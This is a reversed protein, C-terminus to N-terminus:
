VIRQVIICLVHQQFSIDVTFISEILVSIVFTVAVKINLVASTFVSITQLTIVRGADIHASIQSTHIQILQSGGTIGRDTRGSTCYAFICHDVASLEPEAHVGYHFTHMISLSQILDNVPNGASNVFVRSIVLSSEYLAIFVLIVFVAIIYIRCRQVKDIVEHAVHIFDVFCFFSSFPVEM